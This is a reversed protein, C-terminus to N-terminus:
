RPFRLWEANEPVGTTLAVFLVLTLEYAMNVVVVAIFKTRLPFVPTKESFTSRGLPVEIATVTRPVPLWNLPVKLEPVIKSLVPLALM